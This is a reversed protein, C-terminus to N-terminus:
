KHHTHKWRICGCLRGDVLVPPNSFHDKKAVFVSLHGTEPMDTSDAFTSLLSARLHRVWREDAPLGCCGTVGGQTLLLAPRDNAATQWLQRSVRLLRSAAMLRAFSVQTAASIPLPKHLKLHYKHGTARLELAGSFHQRSIGCPATLFTPVGRPELKKQKKTWISSFSFGRRQYIFGGLTIPNKLFTKQM